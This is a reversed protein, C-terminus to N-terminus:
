TSRKRHPNMGLLVTGYIRLMVGAPSPPVCTSTWVISSYTWVSRPYRDRSLPGPAAPRQQRQHAHLAVLEM